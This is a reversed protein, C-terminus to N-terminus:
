WDQYGEAGSSVRGLAPEYRYRQGFPDIPYGSRDLAQARLYQNAFITGDNTFSLLRERVLERLDSPHRGNVAQYLQISSRISALGTSLAAERAKQITNYYYSMMMHILGAILICVFLTELITLGAPGENLVGTPRAGLKPRNRM